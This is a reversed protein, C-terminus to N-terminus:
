KSIMASKDISFYQISGGETQIAQGPVSWSDMVPASTSRLVAVEKNVVLHEEIKDVIQNTSKNLAQKAIGLSSPSSGPPGYYNGRGAGPVQFQVLKTGPELTVVEVSKNLNIGKMHQAIRVDDFGQKRYFNEAVRRRAALVEATPQLEEIRQRQGSVAPKRTGPQNKYFVGPSEGGTKPKVRLRPDDRLTKWNGEVWDAFGGGLKSKRLEILAEALAEDAAAQSGVSRAKGASAIAASTSKVAARKLVWAVLGQLILLFLLAVSNAIEEAAKAIEQPSQRPAYEPAAWAKEVGRLLTSWLEGFGHAIAVALFGLGLWTLAAVGVNLGIEGGIVVGPAAGAGGFFFGIIGGAVGGVATTVGVVVLMEVLGPLLGKLIEGLAYGTKAAVASPALRVAITFADYLSEARASISPDRVRGGPGPAATPMRCSTGDDIDFKNEWNCIPGPM